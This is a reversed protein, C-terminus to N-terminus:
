FQINIGINYSRTPPYLYGDAAGGSDAQEPDYGPLMNSWTYLNNGSLYVKVSSIGIKKLRRGNFTYGVELNKLRIFDTSQLYLDNMAGNQTDENRLSARPWKAAIGRDAKDQTWRDEYHFVQASGTQMYFPNLMYHSSIPMSGDCAGTFLASLSFGKYELGLNANFTYRPLNSYGIPAIDQSDIIGDGNLDIYRIDGPQVKNGDMTIYPRNNVEDANNYFGDTHYGKYQGYSFGTSNMWPYPNAPEDQYIIKNIAYSVGAGITYHFESIHDSWTVQIEYGKNNMKGINGYPPTAGVFGPTSGYSWLIDRRDENFYDAVIALRDRFFNIDIGVNTKQAREWTVDPNGLRSEKAGAYYIPLASGDSPGFYGGNGNAMGKLYEWTSPLYLFRNGGIKDNGVEGYSARIKLFTLWDNKPLFKENTVIWGVSYAPFFGFRKGEPFNESGNYGANFEAFYRNDFSYTIRGASGIMGSPVHFALSPNRQQQANYLILASVSHRGFTRNYEAKLELYFSNRKNNYSNQNDKVDTPSTTGGFFLIENPDEPNRGVKYRQPYRTEIRSKRHTDNYSVTGSISLGRTLYDMTHRLRITSSIDTTRTDLLSSNILYPTPAYGTGRGDLPNLAKVYEEVLKGDIMGPGVFPSGSLIQILMQKHRSTASTIDGDKGLIGRSNQISGGVDVSLKLTKTVDIDVNSRFNYRSYNSNNDVNQYKANDFLGEQELYGVSAFYKLRDSGGSININFQHQPAVGGFQKDFWDDSRYYLGPRNNLAAKQEATLNMADVEDPTYDRNAQFKWLEYKDFLYQNKSIDGDNAIAENRLLAYRYSDLMKLKSSLQTVGFRYSLNIRPAGSTGRKTTIIAVGNAGKVGYVATASADKLVSISQIENPDLTNMAEVTSQVGDIVILPDQGESNLTAVGRIRLTTQNDGPEGSSQVSSVGPIRGVLANSINSTPSEIITASKVVAVSGTLTEKKQAGYGVVVVEGVMQSDSELVIEFHTATGVKRSATIYGVYSIDLTNEPQAKTRFTGKVDTVMGNLVKTGDKLIVTAGILPNGETDLVKGTIERAGQARLTPVASLIAIALLTLTRAAGALVHTPSKCKM